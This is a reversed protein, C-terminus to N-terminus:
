GVVWPPSGAGELVRSVAEDTVQPQTESDFRWVPMWVPWRAKKHDPCAQVVQDFAGAPLPTLGFVRLDRGDERDPQDDLMQLRYATPCCGCEAVGETAGDYWGLAVIRAFRPTGAADSSAM